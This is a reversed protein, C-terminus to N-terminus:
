VHRFLFSFGRIDAPIRCRMIKNLVRLITATPLIGVLIFVVAIVIINSSGFFCVPDAPSLPQWRCKRALAINASDSEGTETHISGVSNISYFNSM